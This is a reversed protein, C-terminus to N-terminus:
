IKPMLVSSMKNKVNKAREAHKFFSEFKATMCTSKLYSELPCSTGHAYAHIWKIAFYLRSVITQRYYATAGLLRQIRCDLKLM